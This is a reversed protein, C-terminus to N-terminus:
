LIFCRDKEKFPNDSPKAWGTILHDERAHATCYAVIDHVTKSVPLRAIKAETRLQMLTERQRMVAEALKKNRSDM